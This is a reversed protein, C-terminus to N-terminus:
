KLLDTLSHDLDTFKFKYGSEIIKNSSIKSGELIVKSMEGFVLKLLFAPVNPMFFPKNMVKALVKAFDYYTTNSPSVINYAGNMSEDIISKEIINILDKFHIWPLFQKGSGLASGFGLKTPLLMKKLAGGDTSLVVGFRLLITRVGINQFKLAADEWKKCVDALFDNGPQDEEKYVKDNTVAGYYGTASASIFAKLNTGSRNLKDFLLNTSEVRSNIIEKKRKDTWRKDAIGAGALHIVYNINELAEKEIFKSDVDWIFSNKSNQRKTRSLKIVEYNNKTLLESLISGILGSSGTILVKNM